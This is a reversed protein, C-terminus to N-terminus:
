ARRLEDATLRHVVTRLGRVGLYIVRFGGPLSVSKESWPGEGFQFSIAPVSM